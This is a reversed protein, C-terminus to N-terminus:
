GGTCTYIGGGMAVQGVARSPKDPVARRGRFQTGKGAKLGQGWMNERGTM